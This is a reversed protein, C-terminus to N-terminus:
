DDDENEESPMPRDDDGGQGPIDQGPKAQGPNGQGPIEQGPQGQGPNGQDPDYQGGQGPNSADNGMRIDKREFSPAPPASDFSASGGRKDRVIIPNLFHTAGATPDSTAGTLVKDAIKAATQYNPDDTSLREIAVRKTM